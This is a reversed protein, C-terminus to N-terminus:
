MVRAPIHVLKCAGGVAVIPLDARGRHRISPFSRRKCPVRTMQGCSLTSVRELNEPPLIAVGSGHHLRQALNFLPTPACCVEHSYANVDAELLRSLLLLLTLTAQIHEGYQQVLTSEVMTQNSSIKDGEALLYVFLGIYRPVVGGGSVYGAHLSSSAHLV